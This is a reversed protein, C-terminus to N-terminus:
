SLADAWELLFKVDSRLIGRAPQIQIMKWPTDSEQEKGLRVRAAARDPRFVEDDLFVWPRPEQDALWDLVLPTKWFLSTHRGSRLSPHNLDWPIYPLDEPLGLNPAILTQAAKEWTTAWVIDFHAQIRSLDEGMERSLLVPLDEGVWGPPRFWHKTYEYPDEGKSTKPPTYGKRTILRYPNLPGDVDLLLYPKM